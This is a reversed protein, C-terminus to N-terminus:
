LGRLLGCSRYIEGVTKRERSGSRNRPMLLFSLLFALAFSIDRISEPPPAKLSAIRVLSPPRPRLPYARVSLRSSPRLPVSVVSHPLELSPPSFSIFIRSKHRRTPSLVAGPTTRNQCITRFNVNGITGPDGKRLLRIRRATRLGNECPSFFFPPPFKRGKRM